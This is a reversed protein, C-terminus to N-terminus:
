RTSAITRHVSASTPGLCPRRGAGGGQCQQRGRARAVAELVSTCSRCCSICRSSRMASSLTRRQPQVIPAPPPRHVPASLAGRDGRMYSCRSPRTSSALRAWRGDHMQMAAHSLYLSQVGSGAGAGNIRVPAAPPWPAPAPPPAACTQLPPRLRQPRQARRRRGAPALVGCGTGTVQWPSARVPLANNSEAAHCCWRNGCAGHKACM